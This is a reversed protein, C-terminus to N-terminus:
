SQSCAVTPVSPPSPSRRHGISEPQGGAASVRWVDWRKQDVSDSYVAARVNLGAQSTSGAVIAAIINAVQMKSLEIVDSPADSFQFGTAWDAAQELRAPPAKTM